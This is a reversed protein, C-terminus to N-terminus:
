KGTTQRVAEDLTRLFNDSNQLKASIAQATRRQAPTLQIELLDRNHTANVGALGSSAALSYLCYAIAINQSVARGNLYMFALNSQARINGQAAALRYWKVADVDSKQVGLGNAFSRGLNFQGVDNGQYAAKRFWNVAEIDNKGVGKGGAYMFGLNSQGLADGQLAALRYLRVAETYNQPVGCWEM